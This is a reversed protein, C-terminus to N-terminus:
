SQYAKRFNALNETRNWRVSDIFQNQAPCWVQGEGKLCNHCLHIDGTDETQNDLGRAQLAEVVQERTWERLPAYLETDGWKAPPAIKNLTYHTDDDRSGIVWIDWKMPPAIMRQGELEAICRTGEVVDRILPIPQSGIAIEFVASINEDEGIFSVHSPPFSFVKLNWKKILDDSYKLQEKTWFSRIQVIDCPINQERMMALILTSDKGGSWLLVPRKGTLREFM